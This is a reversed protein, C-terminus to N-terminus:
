FTSCRTRPMVRPMTWASNLSTPATFNSLPVEYARSITTFDATAPLTVLCAALSLIWKIRM